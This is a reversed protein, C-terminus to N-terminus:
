ITSEPQNEDGDAIKPRLNTKKIKEKIRNLEEIKELFAGVNYNTSRFANKIPTVVMQKSPSEYYLKKRNQRSNEEPMKPNDNYGFNQLLNGPFSSRLVLIFNRNDFPLTKREERTAM